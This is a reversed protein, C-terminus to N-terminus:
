LTLNQLITDSLRVPYYTLRSLRIVGTLDDTLILRDVLPTLYGGTAPITLGTNLNVDGSSSSTYCAFDNDAIAAAHKIVYGYNTSDEIRGRNFINTDAGQSSVTRFGFVGNAVSQAGIEWFNLSDGFFNVQGYGATPIYQSFLSGESQNYWSSFNSGTMSAADAARTVTSSTTPIYSTPFAGEELQAGWIYLGQGTYPTGDFVLSSTTNDPNAIAITLSHGGFPSVTFTASIKYWGNSLLQASTTVGSRVYYFTGTSSNFFCLTVPGPGSDWYALAIRSLEKPKVFVSFTYTTSASVTKRLATGVCFEDTVSSATMLDATTTGDPSTTQNAAINVTGSIFWGSSWFADNFVESYLFNNTREEEILLGLSEGTEPDHDFRPEHDVAYKILGDNGVYTGVSFREFDVRPDLRKTRAFNLDLSPRQTPYLHKITM